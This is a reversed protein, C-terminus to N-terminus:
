KLKSVELTYTPYIGAVQDGLYGLVVQYGLQAITEQLRIVQTETYENHHDPHRSEVMYHINFDKNPVTIAAGCINNDAKFLDKVLELAESESMHELVESLVLFTSDEPYLFSDETINVIEVNELQKRQTLNKAKELAEPDKDIAFYTVEPNKHLYSAFLRIYNGEGCGYDVINATPSKLAAQKIWDLRNSLTTGHTLKIPVGDYQELQTKFKDFFRKLNLLNVKFVYRIFYPANIKNLSNLYKTINAEDLMILDNDNKLVTLILFVTLYNLLHGVTMNTSIKLNVYKASGCINTFELKVDPFHTQFLSLYRDDYIELANIEISNLYGETDKEHQKKTASSFFEGVANLVFMPSTYRTVNMFEFSEDPYSKYSVETESDRFWVVYTDDKFFGWATGQRISKALLGTAPNKSIIWGLDPNTSTLKILAM